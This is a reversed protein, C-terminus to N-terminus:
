SSVKPIFDRKKLNNNMKIHMPNAVEQSLSGVPATAFIDAMGKADQSSPIASM